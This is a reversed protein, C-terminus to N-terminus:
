IVELYASAPFAEMISILIEKRHIINYVRKLIYEGEDLGFIQIVRGTAREKGIAVLERRFELGHIKMIKGIPIDARLLDERFEDTLRSLPALSIAYLLPRDTTGDKLIVERYNVSDGLAVGLRLAIDENAMIIKQTLTEVVVPHGTYIELLLTMSGDTLLMLKQLFPLRELLESGEVDIM